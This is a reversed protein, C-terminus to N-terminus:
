EQRQGMARILKGELIESFKDKVAIGKWIKAWYSVRNTKKRPDGKILNIHLFVDVFQDRYFIASFDMCFPRAALRAFGVIITLILMHEFSRILRPCQLEIKAM